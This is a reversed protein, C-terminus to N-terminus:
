PSGTSASERMRFEIIEEKITVDYGGFFDQGLLGIDLTPSIGVSLNDARIGNIEISDIQTVSVELDNQSATNVRATGTEELGLQEAMTQTIVTGSAGTDFMMEFSKNGNILVDVVPIGADRRKIPIEIFGPNAARGEVTPPLPCVEDLQIVNEDDFILFCGPYEQAPLPVSWFSGGALILLIGLIKKM